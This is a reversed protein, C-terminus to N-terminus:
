NILAKIGKSNKINLFKSRYFFFAPSSNVIEHQNEAKFLFQIKFGDQQKILQKHFM